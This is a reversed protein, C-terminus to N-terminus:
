CSRDWSITNEFGGIWRTEEVDTLNTKANNDIFIKVEMEDDFKAVSDQCAVSLTGLFGAIKIKRLKLMRSLGFTGYNQAHM